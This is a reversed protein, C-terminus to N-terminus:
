KRLGAAWNMVVTMPVAATNVPAANVLFRQGDASVTYPHGLGNVWGIQFLAKAQGVQFDTGKGDVSVAMLNNDPSLYFLERGDRSWKPYVGGNTSVQRKGALGPFPVVYVESRNSENSSYAVWRVDPSFQGNTENYQSTLLPVPKRDGSLPLFWLDTGKGAATTRFLLYKGDSSWDQPYKNGLENELLVDETGAGSSSKAYIQYDGKRNSNGIIRSGDPSWIPAREDSPEFTFRTKLGRVLDYIWIDRTWGAALTFSVRKQDPSLWVDGYSAPEAIIPFQKGKRDVWMLQSGSAAATQYVLVGNDSASFASYPEGSVHLQIQEALPFPEGSFELHKAGFPQAMLTGERVFLLHGQSYGVNSGENKFLLKRDASDLSAVYIRAASNGGEAEYIFHKGDPLFFPRQYRVEGEVFPPTAASTAGGASSVRRIPNASSGFLIVGGRSWTGGTSISVDCLTIAPGGATDIKKLKGDAFFGVYRSDPSWFPSAAGDTGSLPQATLADFPRLWIMAKGDTGTALFAIRQGDPSVALPGESSGGLLDKITWGDPPPVVFRISRNEIPKRGFYVLAGVGVVLAALVGFLM